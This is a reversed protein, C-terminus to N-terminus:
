IPDPMEQLWPNNANKGSGMSVKEYLVVEYKEGKKGSAIMSVAASTSWPNFVAAAAAATTELVGDQLAKDFSEQSGLKNIWYNKFYNYYETNNGAWKLLSTQFARTKFLPAITPQLFSIYGSKGEADGWSELYHHDPLIFKCLESTEDE